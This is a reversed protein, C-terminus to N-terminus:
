LEDDDSTVGEEKVDEEVDVVKDQDDAEVKKCLVAVFSGENRLVVAVAASARDSFSTVFVFFFYDM